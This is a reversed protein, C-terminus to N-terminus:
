KSSVLICIAQVIEFSHVKLLNYKDTRLRHFDMILSYSQKTERKREWEKVVSFRWTRIINHSFYILSRFM